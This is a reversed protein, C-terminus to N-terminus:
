QDLSDARAPQRAILALKQARSLQKLQYERHMAAHQDPFSEFYRLTVPRRARTYKAGVKGQNHAAIRKALDVTYGAYLTGDACEVLYAYHLSAM